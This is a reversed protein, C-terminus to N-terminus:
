TYPEFTDNTPPHICLKVFISPISRLIDFVAINASTGFQVLDPTTDYPMRIILHKSLSHNVNLVPIFYLTFTIMLRHFRLTQRNINYTVQSVNEFFFTFVCCLTSVILSLVSPTSQSIEAGSYNLTM